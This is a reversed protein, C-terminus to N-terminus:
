TGAVAGFIVAGAADKGAHRRRVIQRHRGIVEGVVGRDADAFVRVVRRPIEIRDALELGADDANVCLAVPAAHLATGTPMEALCRRPAGGSTNALPRLAHIRRVSAGREADPLDCEREAPVRTAGHARRVSAGCEADPLNCEREAPVGTAGHACWVPEGREADAALGARRVGSTA